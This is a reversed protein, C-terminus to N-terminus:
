PLPAGAMWWAAVGSGALTVLLVMCGGAPALGGGPVGGDAGPVAAGGAGATGAHWNDDSVLSIDYHNWGAQRSGFWQTAVPVQEGSKPQYAHPTGTQNPVWWDFEGSQLGAQRLRAYNNPNAYITAKPGGRQNHSRAWQVAVQPDSLYLKEFDLVDYDPHAGTHDLSLLQAGPWRGFDGPETVIFQALAPIHAPSGDYMTRTM